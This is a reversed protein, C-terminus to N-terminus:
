FGAVCTAPKKEAWKSQIIRGTFIQRGEEVARGAPNASHFERM